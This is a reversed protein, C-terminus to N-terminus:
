QPNVLIDTDISISKLIKIQEEINIYETNCPNNIRQIIGDSKRIYEQSKDVVAKYVESANKYQDMKIYSSYNKNCKPDYILLEASASDPNSVIIHASIKINNNSYIDVEQIPIM